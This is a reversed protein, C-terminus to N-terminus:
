IKMEMTNYGFDRISEDINVPTKYPYHQRGKWRNFNHQNRDTISNGLLNVSMNQMSIGSGTLMERMQPLASEIYARADQTRGNFEASVKGGQSAVKLVVSGLSEPELKISVESKGDQIMLKAEKLISQAIEHIKDRLANVNVAEGKAMFLDAKLFGVNPRSNFTLPNSNAEGQWEDQRKSNRDTQSQLADDEQQVDRVNINGTTNIVQGKTHVSLEPNKNLLNSSLANVGMNGKNDTQQQNEKMLTTLVGEVIDNPKANFGKDLELAKVQVASSQMNDIQFPERERKTINEALVTKSKELMQLDVLVNSSRLDLVLFRTPSDGHHVIAVPNEPVNNQDGSVPLSQQALLQVTQPNAEVAVNEPLISNVTAIEDTFTVPKETYQPNIAVLNGNDEHLFTQARSEVEISRLVLNKSNITEERSMSSLGVGGNTLLYGIMKSLSTDSPNQVLADGPKGKRPDVKMDGTLLQELQITSNCTNDSSKQDLMITFLQMLFDAAINGPWSSVKLQTELPLNQSVSSPAINM